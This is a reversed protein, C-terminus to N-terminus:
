HPMNLIRLKLQLFIFILIIATIVVGSYSYEDSYQSKLSDIDVSSTCPREVLVDMSNPEMAKLSKRKSALRSLEQSAKDSEFSSWNPTSWQTSAEVTLVIICDIVVSM